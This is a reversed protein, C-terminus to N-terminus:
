NESVVAALLGRVSNGVFLRNTGIVAPSFNEESVPLEKGGPLIVSGKKLVSRRLVGNLCGSSLAPTLVRNEDTLHLFLNCRSTEVALGNKVLLVDHSRDKLAKTMQTWRERNEFKFAHAPERPEKSNFIRLTVPPHIESYESVEAKFISPNKSPFLLRVIKPDTYRSKLDGEIQSYIQRITELEVNSNLFGYAEFTRELHFEKLFFESNKFLLTDLVTNFSQM